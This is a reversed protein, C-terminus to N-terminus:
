SGRSTENAYKICQGQNKFSSGDAARMQRWGDKKCDDKNNPTRIAEFDYTWTSGNYSISLADTAAFLGGNFSGQNVGFGGMITANPYAAVFASWSFTCAQRACPTGDALVIPTSAWWTGPVADWNQWVGDAITAGPQLYPEFVLTLFDGPLRDGGNRDVQINISPLAVGATSPAYRYTSYQIDTIDALQTQIHDYNFLTTKDANTPTNMEFSGSGLPPNGPGTIFAGTSTLPIRYYFVWNDTPPTNEPQRTIDTESVVIARGSGSGDSKAFVANPANPGTPESTCAAVTALCAVAALKLIHRMVPIRETLTPPRFSGQYRTGANVFGYVPSVDSM